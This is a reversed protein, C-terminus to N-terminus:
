HFFQRFALRHDNDSMAKGRNHLCIFYYNQIITAHDFLPFMAFEKRLITSNVLFQPVQLGIM